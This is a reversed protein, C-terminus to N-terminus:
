AGAKMKALCAACTVHADDPHIVADFLAGCLASWSKVRVSESDGYTHTWTKTVVAKHTM